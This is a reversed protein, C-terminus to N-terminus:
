PLFRQSAFERLAKKTACSKKLSMNKGGGVTFLLDPSPARNM